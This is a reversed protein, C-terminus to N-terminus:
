EAERKRIDVQCAKEGLTNEQKGKKLKGNNNNNKIITIRNYVKAATSLHLSHTIHSPLSAPLSPLRRFLSGVKTPKNNSNNNNEAYQRTLYRLILM